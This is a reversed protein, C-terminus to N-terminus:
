KSMYPFDFSSMLNAIGKEKERKREMYPGCYREIKSSGDLDSDFLIRFYRCLYYVSRYNKPTNYGHRKETVYNSVLAEKM